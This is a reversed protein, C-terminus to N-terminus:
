VFKRIRRSVGLLQLTIYYHRFDIQKTEKNYSLLMVRQCSSLKVTNVDIVSFINQFMVTVLKLQKEESGFGALVILPPNKFIGATSRQRSQSRAIDAMLSYDHMKFTLTPNHPCRAVRLCPAKEINSIILLHTVGFPGVSIEEQLM